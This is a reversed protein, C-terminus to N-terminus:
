NLQMLGRDYTGNNNRGVALPNGQSEKIIIAAVLYPPVDYQPAITMVISMIWCPLSVM